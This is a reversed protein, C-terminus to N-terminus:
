RFSHSTMVMTMLLSHKSSIQYLSRLFMKKKKEHVSSTEMKKKKNKSRSVPINWNWSTHTERVFSLRTCNASHNKLYAITQKADEGLIQTDNKLPVHVSNGSFTFKLSDEVFGLWASSCGVMNTLSRFIYNGM